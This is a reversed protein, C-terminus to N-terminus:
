RYQEDWARKFARVADEYDARQKGPSTLERHHGTEMNFPCITLDELRLTRGLMRRIRHRLCGDCLLQDPDCAVARWIDDHVMPAWRLNGLLSRKCDGCRCRKRNM